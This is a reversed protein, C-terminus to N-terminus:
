EEDDFLMELLLSNSPYKARYLDTMMVVIEDISLKALNEIEDNPDIEVKGIIFDLKKYQYATIELTQIEKLSTYGHRDKIVSKVFDFDVVDNATNKSLLFGIIKAEDDKYKTLFYRM